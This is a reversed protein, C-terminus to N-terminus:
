RCNVAIFFVHYASSVNFCAVIPYLEMFAMSNKWIDGPVGPMDLPWPSFMWHSVYVVAFGATPAADTHLYIDHSSTFNKEYFLSVGNWNGLFLIWM